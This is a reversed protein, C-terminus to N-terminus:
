SAQVSGPFYLTVGAEDESITAVEGTQRCVPRNVLYLRM